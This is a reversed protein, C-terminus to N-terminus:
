ASNTGQVEPTHELVNLLTPHQLLYSTASAPAPHLTEDSLRADPRLRESSISAPLSRTYADLPMPHGALRQHSFDPDLSPTMTSTNRLM